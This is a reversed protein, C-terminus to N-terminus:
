FSSIVIAPYVKLLDEFEGVGIKYQTNGSAKGLYNPPPIGKPQGFGFIM